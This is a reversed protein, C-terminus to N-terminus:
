SIHSAIRGSLGTGQYNPSVYRGSEIIFIDLVLKFYEIGVPREMSDETIVQEM